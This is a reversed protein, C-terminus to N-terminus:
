GVVLTQVDTVPITTIASKTFQAFPQPTGGAIQSTVVWYASIEAHYLGQPQDASSHDYSYWCLDPRSAPTDGAVAAIGTGPCPKMKEGDVGLPRIVLHDIHASLLVGGAQATVTDRTFDYFAVSQRVRPHDAPSIGIVPTPVQSNTGPGKVLQKQRKTLKKVTVGNPVKVPHIDYTANAMSKSKKTIGHLCRYWYWTWGDAAPNNTKGTAALDDATFPEYWCTPVPQNGLIQKVTRGHGHRSGACALGIFTPGAAAQCSGVTGTTPVSNDLGCDSICQPPDPENPGTAMAPGAVLVVIATAVATALARVAINV